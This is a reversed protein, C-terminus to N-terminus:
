GSQLERYLWLKAAQWERSVTREGVDLIEAIEGNTMGGFFRMEVISAQRPDIAALRNLVDDIAVISDAREYSPIEIDDTSIHVPNSGRKAAAHLRAHDVLIQRMMHSAFGYFHSRDKWIVNAADGMKLYAEHVLATPQLTHGVRERSMLYRAQRKLEDYVFALLREKAQEDGNNWDHLIQTIERSEVEAM